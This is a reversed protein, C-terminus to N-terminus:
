VSAHDQQAHRQNDDRLHLSKVLGKTRCGHSVVVSLTTRYQQKGNNRM